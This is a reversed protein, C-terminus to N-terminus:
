QRHFFRLMAPHLRKNTAVYSRSHVTWPAGAADTVRGGAEEVILAAAAIDWPALSLHYYADIRGAAVYSVSLAASGSSRATFCRTVMRALLQSSRQRVAHARGWEMGLVADAFQETASVRIPKGNCTAGRGREAAFLEKRIPDFVAGVQVQGASYLAISVSFLPNRRAYNTTGDLPDVVWACLDPNVDLERWLAANEEAPLEESIFRTAPDHNLLSTRVARESAYDADTVIDRKGKSRIARAAQFKEVLIKGGLRAASKAAQLHSTM